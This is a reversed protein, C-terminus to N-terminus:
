PGGINDRKRRRGERQIHELWLLFNRDHRDYEVSAGADCRSKSIVPTQIGTMNGTM